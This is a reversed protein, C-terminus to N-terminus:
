TDAWGTVNFDGLLMHSMQTETEVRRRPACIQKLQEYKIAKTKKPPVYIGTILLAADERAVPYYKATCMELWLCKPLQPELPEIDCGNHALILVGGGIKGETERRFKTAVEYYKINITGMEDDRLHTETAVCVTVKLDRLLKRLALQERKSRLGNCNVTLLM